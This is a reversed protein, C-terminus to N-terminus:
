PQLSPFSQIYLRRAMCDSKRDNDLSDPSSEQEQLPELSPVMGQTPGMSPRRRTQAYDAVFVEPTADTSKRESGPPPQREPPAIM